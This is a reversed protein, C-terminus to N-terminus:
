LLHGFVEHIKSSAIGPVSNDFIVPFLEELSFKKGWKIKFLPFFAGWCPFFFAEFM